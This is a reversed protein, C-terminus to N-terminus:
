RKTLRQRKRYELKEMAKMDGTKAMEFLKLDIVYDAMDVGKQLLISIKSNNDELQAQIDQLDFNLINAIKKANYGFVGCNIIQEEQEKNITM